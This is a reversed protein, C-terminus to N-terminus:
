KIALWTCIELAHLKKYLWHEKPSASDRSAWLELATEAARPSGADFPLSLIRGQKDGHGSARLEVRSFNQTGRRLLSAPSHHGQDSIPFPQSQLVKLWQDRWRPGLNYM